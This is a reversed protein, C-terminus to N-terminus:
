PLGRELGDHAPAARPCIARVQRLLQDHAPATRGIQTLLIGDVEWGCLRPLERDITLHSFLPRGWMAADVVLLSAAASFRELAATLRAVDSAYVLRTGDPSLRWAYTPYHPERAHPVVLPVLSVGGHRRREGPKVPVLELGDLRRHRRRLAAITEEGAYV